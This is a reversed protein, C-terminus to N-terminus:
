FVTFLFCYIFVTFLFLLYFCYILITYLKYYTIYLLYYIIHLLYYATFLFLSYSAAERYLSKSFEKYM